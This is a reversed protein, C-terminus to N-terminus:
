SLPRYKKFISFPSVSLPPVLACLSRFNEHPIYLPPDEIPDLSSGCHVEM